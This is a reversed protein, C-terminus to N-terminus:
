LNQQKERNRIRGTCFYRMDMDDISPAKPIHHPQIAQKLKKKLYLNSFHAAYGDALDIFKNSVQPLEELLAQIAESFDSKGSLTILAGANLAEASGFLFHGRMDGIYDVLTTNNPMQDLALEHTEPDNHFGMNHRVQKVLNKPNSFYSHLGKLAAAENELWSVANIVKGHEQVLKYGEYLRGCLMRLIFFLMTDQGTKVVVDDENKHLYNIAGMTLCNITNLDNCLQNFRLFLSSEEKPARKLHIAGYRRPYVTIM